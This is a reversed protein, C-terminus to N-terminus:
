LKSTRPRWDYLVCTFGVPTEIVNRDFRCFSAVLRQYLTPDKVVDIGRVLLINNRECKQKVIADMVATVIGFKMDALLDIDCIKDMDAKASFSM